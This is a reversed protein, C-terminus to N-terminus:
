FLAMEKGKGERDLGPDPFQVVGQGDMGRGVKYAAGREYQPRSMAHSKRRIAGGEM